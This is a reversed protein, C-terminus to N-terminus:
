DKIKRVPIFKGTLHDLRFEFIATDRNAAAGGAIIGFLAWALFVTEGDAADKGLGTFYFDGNTKTLPGADRKKWNM